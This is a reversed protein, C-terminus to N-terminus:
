NLKNNVIKSSAVRRPSSTALTFFSSIAARSALLLLIVAPLMLQHLLRLLLLVCPDVYLQCRWSRDRLFTITSSTSSSAPAASLCAGRGRIIGTGLFLLLGTIPKQNFYTLPSIDSHDFSCSQFDHIDQFPCRPNSDRERRWYAFIPSIYLSYNDLRDPEFSLLLPLSNKYINGRKM